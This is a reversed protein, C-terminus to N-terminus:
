SVKQWQSGRGKGIPELRGQERLGQIVKKVLERSVTPIQLCIDAVSFPEEREEIAVTILQSKPARSSQGQLAEVRVELEDYAQILADLFFNIWPMPNHTGEHWGKVSRQLADFYAEQNRAFIREMSIFRGAQYGNLSLMILALLRAIRGNGDSFPHICLFDLVACSVVLLPEVTRDLAGHYLEVTKQMAAATEAAPVTRYLVGKRTGSADREVIDKNTAKWRGGEHPLYSYLLAHLQSILSVSLNTHEAPDVVLDLVDHYGAVQREVPTRPRIEQLVLKRIIERPALINDLSNGYEVSELTAVQRLTDLVEPQQRIVLPQRGLFEGLRRFRALQSATFRYESLRELTNM